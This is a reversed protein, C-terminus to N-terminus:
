KLWWKRKGQKKLMAMSWIAEVTLISAIMLGLGSMPNSDLVIMMDLGIGWSIAATGLRIGILYLIIGCIVAIAWILLSYSLGMSTPTERCRNFISDCGWTCPKTENIIITTGNVVPRAERFMTVNNTCNYTWLLNETDLDINTAAEANSSLVIGIIVATIIILIAAKLVKCEICEKM